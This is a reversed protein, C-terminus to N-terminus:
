NKSIRTHVKMNRMKISVEPIEDLWSYKGDLDRDWLGIWYPVKTGLSVQDLIDFLFLATIITFYPYWMCALSMKFLVLTAFGPKAQTYFSHWAM